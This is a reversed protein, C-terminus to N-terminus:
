ALTYQYTQALKLSLRRAVALGAVQEDRSPTKYLFIAGGSRMFPAAWLLIDPM